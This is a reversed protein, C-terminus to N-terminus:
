IVLFEGSNLYKENDIFHEKYETQEGYCIGPRVTTSMGMLLFMIQIPQYKRTKCTNACVVFSAIISCYVYIHM